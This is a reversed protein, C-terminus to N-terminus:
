ERRFLAVLKALDVTLVRVKDEFNIRQCGIDLLRGLMALCAAYHRRQVGRPEHNEGVAISSEEPVSLLM